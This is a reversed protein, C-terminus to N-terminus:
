ESINMSPSVFIDTTLRTSRFMGDSTGAYLYGTGDLSLSLVNTTTLNSDIKTWTLGNNPSTFVGETTGTFIQDNVNIVISSVTANPMGSDLHIWEDGGNTSRFMASGFSGLFLHNSSNVAISTIYLNQLGTNIQTPILNNDTFRYMGASWASFYIINTRSELSAVIPRAVSYKRTWTEGNNTSIYVNGNTAGVVLKGLVTAAITTISTDSIGSNKRQWTIGDDDSRYIGTSDNVAYVMTHIDRIISHFAGVDTGTTVQQWGRGNNTTRFIRGSDSGALTSGSSSLSYFPIGSVATFKEWILVGLSGGRATSTPENTNRCSLVSGLCLFLLILLTNTPTTM